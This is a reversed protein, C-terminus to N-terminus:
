SAVAACSGTISRTATGTTNRMYLRYKQSSAAAVGTDAYACWGQGPEGPEPPDVLPPTYASSSTVPAGLAVYASGNWKYWQADVNSGFTGGTFEYGASLDVHGGSGVTVTMEPGIAVMATSNTTGSFSSSTSGGTGSGGGGTSPAPAVDKSVRVDLSRAIGGLTATIRLTASTLTGAALDLSLIGTAGGIAAAITGSIVAVSWAASATQDVGSRLLRYGQTRPLATTVNGLYDAAIAIESIGTVASTVDSGAEAPKLTEADQGDAYIVDPAFVIGAIDGRAMPTENKCYSLRRSTVPRYTARRVVGQSRVSAVSRGWAWERIVIRGDPGLLWLLSVNGLLADLMASVPTTEDGVVWGVPAPRLAEARAIEGDGFAPGAVIRTLRAAIAASTEAYGGGSEGRLDATLDGAPQTWWKVAAISPCVVGGGQPAASAQLAAFTAAASGAWPLVPMAAAAAGEDRLADIAELPQLPDAFVYINNAKDIPEGTVNWVRGFVRPKLKDQWEAPGDLGGTGGYRALPFPKKLDTAPDALAIRWQGPEPSNAELVRGALVPLPQKKEPGIRVSIPADAWILDAVDDISVAVPPTWTLEAAQPVGGEGFDLGDFGLQAVITPLAAIGARWHRGERFYPLAAGGGALRVLRADGSAPDRPEAEVLILPASM